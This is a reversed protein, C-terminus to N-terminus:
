PQKPKSSAHVPPCSVGNAAISGLPTTDVYAAAAIHVVFAAASPVNYFGLTISFIFCVFFNVIVFLLLYLLLFLLM